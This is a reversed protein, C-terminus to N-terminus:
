SPPPCRFARHPAQRDLSSLPVRQSGTLHWTGLYGCLHLEGKQPRQDLPSHSPAPSSETSPSATDAAPATHNGCRRTNVPHPHPLWACTCHTDRDCARPPPSSCLPRESLGQMQTHTRTPRWRRSRRGHTGSPSLTQRPARMPTWTHRQTHADPIHAIPLLHRQLM